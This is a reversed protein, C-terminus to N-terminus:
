CLNSELYNFSKILKETDLGMLQDQLNYYRVLDKIANIGIYSEYASSFVISIKNSKATKILQDIYTYDGIMSPKIIFYSAIEALEDTLERNILTEDLAIPVSSLSSLILLDDTSSCPEEIYKIAEIDLLHLISICKEIDFKRNFDLRFKTGSSKYLANIYNCEEHTGSFKVKVSDSNFLQSPIIQSIDQLFTYSSVVADNSNGFQALYLSLLFSNLGFLFNKPIDLQSTESFISQISCIKAFRNIISNFFTNIISCYNSICHHSLESFIPIDGYYVNDNSLCSMVIGSKYSIFQGFFNVDSCFSLRYEKFNLNM